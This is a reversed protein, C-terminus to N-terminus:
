VNCDKQSLALDHSWWKWLTSVLTYVGICTALQIDPIMIGALHQSYVLRLVWGGLPPRTCKSSIRIGSMPRKGLDAELSDDQHIYVVVAIDRVQEHRPHANWIPHFQITSSTSRNLGGLAM